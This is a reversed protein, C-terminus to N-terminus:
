THAMITTLRRYTVSDMALPIAILEYNNKCRNHVPGAQPKSTILLKYTLAQVRYMFLEQASRSNSGELLKANWSNSDGLLKANGTVHKCTSHGLQQLLSTKSPNLILCSKVYDIFHNLGGKRSSSSQSDV